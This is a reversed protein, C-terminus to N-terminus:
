SKQIHSLHENCRTPMQVQIGAHDQTHTHVYECFLCTFLACGFVTFLSCAYMYIYIYIYIYIHTHTSTKSM